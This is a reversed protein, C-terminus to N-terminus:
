SHSPTSGRGGLGHAHTHEGASTSAIAPITLASVALAGVTLMAVAAPTSRRPEATRVPRTALLLAFVTMVELVGALVDATGITEAEGPEPGIPLGVTRTLTWLVLTAVNVFMILRFFPVRDRALALVAWLVQVTGLCIFFVGYLWWESLHERVVSFHVLGAGLSAFGAWCRAVDSRTMESEHHM